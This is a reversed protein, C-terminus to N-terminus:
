GGVTKASQGFLVKKAEDDLGTPSRLEKGVELGRAVAPRAKMAEFWRQLHPFDELKQGQNQYPLVWPFAAMDAISYAGALFERDSLRRNMVAYLRNVENTYRDIAYAIKEPAYQRFHHAQGAMPGLGGMQWMVWQTVEYRGRLDAPLFKGTKEGLYLLIAGSEFVSLPGGGDAPAHDVIAPMRNNPSIALFDPRFQEGRGINVPVLRYPLGTEELMISVKWGNPTPWYHLDIM